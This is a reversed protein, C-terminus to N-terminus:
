GTTDYTHSPLPHLLQHAGYACVCPAGDAGPRDAQCSHLPNHNVVSGETGPDQWLGGSMDKDCLSDPTQMQCHM